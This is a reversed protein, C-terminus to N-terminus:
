HHSGHCVKCKIQNAVTYTDSSYIRVVGQMDGTAFLSEDTSIALAHVQAGDGKIEQERSGTEAVWVGVSGDDSVSVLIDTNLYLCMRVWDRHGNLVNVVEGTAALWRVISRDSSSSVLHEGSQSYELWLINSTHKNLRFVPHNQPPYEYIEVIYSNYTGGIAIFDGSPAIAVSKVEGVAYKHVETFSATSVITLGRTTAIALEEKVPHLACHWPSGSNELRVSGLVVGTETDDAYVTASQNSVTYVVPMRQRTRPSHPLCALFYARLSSVDAPNECAGNRM